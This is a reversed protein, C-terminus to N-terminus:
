IVDNMINRYWSAWARGWLTTCKRTTINHTFFYGWFGDWLMLNLLNEHPLMGGSRELKHTCALTCVRTCSCTLQVLAIKSGGPRYGAMWVTCIPPLPGRLKVVLSALDGMAGGWGGMGGSRTASWCGRVAPFLHVPLTCASADCSSSEFVTYSYQTSLSHLSKRKLVSLSRGCQVSKCPCSITPDVAVLAWYM